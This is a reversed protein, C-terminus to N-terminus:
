FYLLPSVTCSSCGIQHEASPRTTGPRFLFIDVWLLEQRLSTPNMYIAIVRTIKLTYRKVNIDLCMLNPDAPLNSLM